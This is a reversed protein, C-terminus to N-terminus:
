KRKLLKKSSIMITLFEINSRAVQMRKYIPVINMIRMDSLSAHEDGYKAVPYRATESNPDILNFKLIVTELNELLIESSHDPALLDIIAIRAEKWLPLLKHTTVHKKTKLKIFHKLSLELAHRYLYLIPYIMVDVDSKNKIVRKIIIDGSEFYGKAYEMYTYPGNHPGICANLRPDAGEGFPSKEYDSSNM